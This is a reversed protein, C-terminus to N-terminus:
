GIRCQEYRVYWYTSGTLRAQQLLWGCNGYYYGDYFYFGPGWGYYRGRRWPRPGGASRGSVVPGGGSIGPGVVVRRGPGAFSRGSPPAFSRGGGGGGGGFSRGGGGGGGGGFSRGGGGGGGGGRRVQVTLHDGDRAAEAPPVLPAAVAPMVLLAALGAGIATVLFGNM